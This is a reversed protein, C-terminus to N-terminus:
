ELYWGMPNNASKVPATGKAPREVERLAEDIEDEVVEEHEVGIPRWVSLPPRLRADFWRGVAQTFHLGHWKFLTVVAGILLCAVFWATAGQEYTWPVGWDLPKLNFRITQRGFDWVFYFAAVYLGQTYNLGFFTSRHSLRPRPWVNGTPSFQSPTLPRM